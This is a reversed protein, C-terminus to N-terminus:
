IKLFEQTLQNLIIMILLIFTLFTQYISLYLESLYLPNELFSFCFSDCLFSYFSFLNDRFFLQIQVAANLEYDARVTLLFIMTTAKKSWLLSLFASNLSKEVSLFYIYTHLFLAVASSLSTVHQTREKRRRQRSNIVALGIKATAKGSRRRLRALSTAGPTTARSSYSTAGKCSGIPRSATKRTNFCTQGSASRATEGVDYM